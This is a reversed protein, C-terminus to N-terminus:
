CRQDPISAHPLDGEPLMRLHRRLARAVGAAFLAGPHAAPPAGPPAPQCPAHRLAPLLGQSRVLGIGPCYGGQAHRARWDEYRARAAASLAPRRAPTKKRPAGPGSGPQRSPDLARLPGRDRAGPHHSGRAATSVCTLPQSKYKSQTMGPAHVLLILDRGREGTGAARGPQLLQQRLDARGAPGLKASAHALQEAEM